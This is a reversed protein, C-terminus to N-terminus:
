RGHHQEQQRNRVEHVHSPPEHRPSQRSGVRKAMLGVADARNRELMALRRRHGLHRRWRRRSSTPPKILDHAAMKLSSRQIAQRLAEKDDTYFTVRYKSRSATVYAQEMNSAGFSDSSQGVIAHKVTKSQTGYSTEIGHKFHGFDKPM